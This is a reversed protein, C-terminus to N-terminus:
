GSTSVWVGSCNLVCQSGEMGRCLDSEYTTHRYSHTSFSQPHALPMGIAELSRHCLCLCLSSTLYPLQIHFYLINNISVNQPPFNLRGFILRQHTLHAAYNRLTFSATYYFLVVFYLCTVLTKDICVESENNLDTVYSWTISDASYEVHYETIWQDLDEKGQIGVGTVQHQRYLNISLWQTQDNSAAVWGGNPQNLRANAAIYSGSTSSASLQTDTINGDEIGM